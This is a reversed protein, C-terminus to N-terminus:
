IIHNITVFIVCCFYWFIVFFIWSRQRFPSRHKNAYSGLTKKMYLRGMFVLMVPIVYQIISGAYSGTISVLLEVNYTIFAIGIPPIVTLLPFLYSRVFLGYRKGEKLFLTKLNERLTIGIIPFNTSLTFVPFLDLFYKFFLPHEFNLTYLDEISDFAFVATTVLLFYFTAVMVFDVLLMTNIKTKNVVPTIISPLSHQCMFSYVAVGFFNPLNKVDFIKARHTGEGKGIRLIALTVMVVFAAWRFFTTVIQLVKTKALNFFVFPCLCVVFVVLMIRYMDLNSIHQSVNRCQQNARDTTNFINSGGCIASALSKPVAAAYIALDGYLYLAIVIYYLILGVKNFFMNALQGLEVKTTIEYLDEDGPDSSYSNIMLPSDEAPKIEVEDDDSDIVDAETQQANASRQGRKIRLVANGISMAEIMFTSTCYSMIALVGIAAIGLAWGTQAFAQPLALAGAGVILNFVYIFAVKWSYHSDSDLSTAM